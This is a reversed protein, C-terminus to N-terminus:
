NKVSHFREDEEATKNDTKNNTVKSSYAFLTWNHNMHMSVLVHRKATAYLVFFALQTKFTTQSRWLLM